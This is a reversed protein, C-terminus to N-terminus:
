PIERTPNLPECLHAAPGGDAHHVILVIERDGSPRFGRRVDDVDFPVGRTKVTLRGAGLRKLAEAAGRRTWPLSEIRRWSRAGPDDSPRDGTLYAIGGALLAMGRERAYGNMLGARLLAGDPEHIWDGPPAVPPAPTEPDGSWTWVAADAVPGTMVVAVPREAAAEGGYFAAERVSGNWSVVELSWEAAPMGELLAGPATMAEHSLDFGPGWKVAWATAAALLPRLDAPRPSLDDARV